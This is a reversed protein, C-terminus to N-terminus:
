DLGGAAFSGSYDPSNPLGPSAGTFRRCEPKMKTNNPTDVAKDTYHHWVHPYNGRAGFMINAMEMSRSVVLDYGGAFPPMTRSGAGNILREDIDQLTIDFPDNRPLGLEPLHIDPEPFCGDTKAAIFMEKGVLLIFEEDPLRYTRNEVGRVRLFWGRLDIPRAGTNRLEIFIDDPDYVRGDDTETVSGSWLVESIQLNGREGNTGESTIGDRYAVQFDSKPPEACGVLAFLVATQLWPRM